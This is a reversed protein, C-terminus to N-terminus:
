VARHLPHTTTVSAGMLLLFSIVGQAVPVTSPLSLVRLGQRGTELCVLTGQRQPGLSSLPRAPQTLGRRHLQPGHAGKGLGATDWALGRARSSTRMGPDTHLPDSPPPPLHFPPRPSALLM